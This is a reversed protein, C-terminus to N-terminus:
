SFHIAFTKFVIMTLKQCFDNNLYLPMFSYMKLTNGPPIPTYKEKYDSSYYM